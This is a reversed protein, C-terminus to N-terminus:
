QHGASGTTRLALMIKQGQMTCSCGCKEGDLRIIWFVIVLLKGTAQKCICWCILYVQEDFIAHLFTPAEKEYDHEPFIERSSVLTYNM